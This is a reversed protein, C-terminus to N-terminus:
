QFGVHTRCMPVGLVPSRIDDRLECETVVVHYEQLVYDLIFAVILVTELYLGPGTWM